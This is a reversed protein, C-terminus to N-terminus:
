QGASQTLVVVRKIGASRLERTVSILARAPLAQDPLVKVDADPDPRGALWVGISPVPEDNHLLAGDSTIVLADPDSCCDLGSSQVFRIGSGTRTLTGTIMFFILILFVINILPIISDGKSTRKIRNM